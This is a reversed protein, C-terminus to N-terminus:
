LHPFLWGSFTPTRELSMRSNFQLTLGSSWAGLVGARATCKAGDHALEGPTTNELATNKIVILSAGILTNAPLM